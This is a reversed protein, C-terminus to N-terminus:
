IRQFALVQLLGEAELLDGDSPNSKIPHAAIPRCGGADEPCNEAKNEQQLTAVAEARDSTAPVKPIRRVNDIAEMKDVDQTCTTSIAAVFHTIVTVEELYTLKYM